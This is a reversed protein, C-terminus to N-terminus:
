MAWRVACIGDDLVRISSVNGPIVLPSVGSQTEVPRPCPQIWGGSFQFFEFGNDQVASDVITTKFDKVEDVTMCDSKGIVPIVAVVQLLPTPAINCRSAAQSSWVVM